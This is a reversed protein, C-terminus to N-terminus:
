NSISFEGYYEDGNSLFVTVSYDGASPIYITVVNPTATSSRDVVPGTLAAVEVTVQGVSSFFSVSLSQGDLEASIDRDSDNNGKNKLEIPTGEKKENGTGIVGRAFCLAGSVVLCLMLVIKVYKKM